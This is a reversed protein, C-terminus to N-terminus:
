KQKSKKWDVAFHFDILKASASFTDIHKIGPLSALFLFSFSWLFSSMRASWVPKLCAEPNDLKNSFQPLCKVSWGHGVISVPVIIM